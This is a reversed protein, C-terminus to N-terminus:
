PKTTANSAVRYDQGAGKNKKIKKPFVLVILRRCGWGVPHKKAIYSTSQLAVATTNICYRCVQSQNQQKTSGWRISSVAIKSSSSDPTSATGNASGSRSKGITSCARPSVFM